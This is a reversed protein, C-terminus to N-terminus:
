VAPRSYQLLGENNKKKEHPQKKTIRSTLWQAFWFACLSSTILFVCITSILSIGWMMWTFQDSLFISSLVMLGGSIISIAILILIATSFIHRM